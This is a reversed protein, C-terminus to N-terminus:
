GGTMTVSDLNVSVSNGAESVVRLRIDWGGDSFDFDILVIDLSQLKEDAPLTLGTQAAILRDELVSVSISIDRRAEELENRGVPSNLSTLLGSGLEPSYRDSGPATLLVKSISQALKHVGSFIRPKRSFTFIEKFRRPARGIFFGSIQGPIRDDIIEELFIVGIDKM